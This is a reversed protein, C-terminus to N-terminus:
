PKIAQLLKDYHKRAKDSLEKAQSLTKLVQSRFEVDAAIATSTRPYVRAAGAKDGASIVVSESDTYCPSSKGSAFMYDGFFYKMISLRDFPGADYASSPPLARLNHDVVAQPWNNPPGGLQTYLGPRKGAADPIFQGFDDTTAVYGPDDDFRFDCTAGPGQHEHEFGIAHGFEHLAVGKWDAPLARDFGELNLSEEGARAIQTDVSDTGVLSYYGQQDFSVRVDATFSADSPLWTRHKGSAPDLFDFRLNAYQTWENVVDAIQKRLGEDGGKFAVVITKGNPWRKTLNIVASLGGPMHAPVASVKSLSRKRQEIRAQFRNPIGELIRIGLKAGEQVGVVAHPAAAQPEPQGGHAAWGAAVLLAVISLPVVSRFSSGEM